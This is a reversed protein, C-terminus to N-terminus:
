ILETAALRTILLEGSDWCELLVRLCAALTERHIDPVWVGAERLFEALTVPDCEFAVVNYGNAHRARYAKQRLARLLRTRRHPAHSRRQHAHKERNIKQM